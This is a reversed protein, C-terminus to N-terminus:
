ETKLAFFHIRGIFKGKKALVSPPKRVTQQFSNGNAFVNSSAELVSASPTTNTEHFAACQSSTRHLVGHPRVFSPLGSSILRSEPEFFSRQNKSNEGSNPM